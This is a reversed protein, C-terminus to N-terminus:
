DSLPLGFSDGVSKSVCDLTFRITNETTLYYHGSVGEFYEKERLGELFSDYDQQAAAVGAIRLNKRHYEFNEITVGAPLTEFVVAFTGAEGVPIMEFNIYASTLAGIFKSMMDLNRKNGAMDTINIQEQAVIMSIMRSKGYLDSQRLANAAFATGLLVGGAALLACFVTSLTTTNQRLEM